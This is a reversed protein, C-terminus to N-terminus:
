RYRREETPTARASSADLSAAQRVLEVFEQRLADERNGLASQALSLANDYSATGRYASRRLLLGFQAVAAAQKLNGSAERIDPAAKAPVPLTLLRSTHGQPEQYRLKVFLLEDNTAGVASTQGPKNIAAAQMLATRAPVIEYLATVQQGTGLEGADKRDDTFDETALARNEYGILRYESVQAPNFEVQLKVDKALTFLTSSFQQVLVRHAEQETDLYAYNGNGKDALLEMTADQLNGEGVGLVSLFVGSQREHTILEELAEQSQEGVNFDGDTCLIVRNNGEKNFNQRAVQYALRLGEGGATSGGAELEDLAAVIQRTDSGATPPLVVGAAGAYVVVSVHDQPRLAERVLQTLGAKLLPLKDPDNMSGSVDLLFVLNAPPLVRTPVERAQLGILVLQHEPNWPCAAVEANLSAPAGATAPQPYEYQFYNILEEVRVADPPPLQGNQTLIRRVNAYSAPDTDIAFTSLPAQSVSQFHNEAIAAYGERNPESAGDYAPVESAVATDYAPLSETAQETSYQQTCAPLLLSGALLGLPLLRSIPM